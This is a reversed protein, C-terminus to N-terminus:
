YDPSQSRTIPASDPAPSQTRETSVPGPDPSRSPTVNGGGGRADGSARVRHRPRGRGRPAPCTPHSQHFEATLSPDLIDDRDIWSREEPGYGEWEILYQLRGNRRRSDLIEQVRYITETTEIEPQPPPEPHDASPPFTPNFHRKLLSVHFTPAIRYHPPLQLEYTVDNLRRIIPFPGIFKPSLKRCPLRLNIDRTSLWVLEGPQYEEREGPVLLRGTTEQRLSNQAYEAWPLYQNWSEQHNHCYSRLYRCIEQIKRETQGNTEPHYGSSLSISVGLLRFFERWVRSTFQTGRDSVIDEPIGFHRFIQSFLLQATNMATPLGPLPILKCAKSFRDVVVLITTFGDSKPLDTAFDIGIHSWPRQPISLPVLKGEPLRRSTNNIACVVCGRIYRYVDRTMQPWWYHNRLLSLTRKGGPHGSGPSTHVSDLLYHRLSSPIYQKGEPGGPPAPEHRTAEQIQDDWSWQIPALFVSQPLITEPEDSIPDPQHLRSLADAKTNKTGPRYSIHFDFRTFFLAWRAQRPNVRKAGQLYQLNKHDTIVTFPFQAGELWHRWEELALKIALLERNGVDYNQEASSLKRSFYACPHLIPPDGHWQSLTAGVGTTAADVEVIFPSNPDPHKLVPATCFASKLQTFVTQAASTWTITKKAGKLLSTLVSTIQSYGKIFRRYFNAFGLFRQLEKVTTPTPWDQVAAVKKPDMEIGEPSIYYGLFQVRDQHFECKEGKLYLQYKRLRQLVQKVHSIHSSLDNSYILIDDIYVVVFQHLMDRFIENMFNQFISPSNALGYPMVRYEYHGSPTVFATKWEDGSRIRILNYASWLDLKSFIKAQRLEELTSPVLPLPYAFKVTQENLARYDICPRLGGDKKAVFFFSSAAPSTSPQIFGQALAEAVYEDMARREPLSLPYVKGKPLTAHPVLDIACDWRRHPPLQTAATKSFVDQFEAYEPPILIELQVEPSEITTSYCSIVKRQPLSSLCHHHCHNSWKLIEGTSWRIHPNHQELWPRGLLIDVTAEPLILFSISEQHFCGIQLTLPHTCSNIPRADLAKGQITTIRYSITSKRKPIQLAELCRSSIFNDAAGSDVLAKVPFFNSESILVADILPKTHMNNTVHGVSVTSKAPRVSCQLLLHSPAGCYLCLGGQLRRTREQATLHYTDTHMPEETSTCSPASEVPTECATLHQSITVARKLFADLGVNDEYIAMQQRINTNLGRRFVALLASDNWGSTLSLTCFRLIYEHIPLKGQHLQLLEERSSPKELDVTGRGMAPSMGNIAHYDPCDQQSRHPIPRATGSFPLPRAVPSPSVPQASRVEHLIQLFTAYPEVIAVAEDREM